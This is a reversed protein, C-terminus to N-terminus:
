PQGATVKLNSSHLPSCLKSRVIPLGIGCAMNAVANMSIQVGVRRADRSICAAEKARKGDLRINKDKM